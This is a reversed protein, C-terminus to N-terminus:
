APDLEVVIEPCDDCFPVARQQYAGNDAGDVDTVQLEDCPIDYDLIFQGQADTYTTTSTQGSQVCSVKIHGIGGQTQRDIVRGQKTYQYPMGYCAAIFVPIAVGILWLFFRCVMRSLRQLASGLPGLAMTPEHVEGRAITM